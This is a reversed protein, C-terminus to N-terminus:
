AVVDTELRSSLGLGGAAGIQGLQITEEEYDDHADM